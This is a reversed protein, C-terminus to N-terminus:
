RVLRVTAPKGDAFTLVMRAGCRTCHAYCKAAGEVRDRRPVMDCRCHPNPCTIGTLPPQPIEVVEAKQPLPTATPGFGTGRRRPNAMRDSHSEHM